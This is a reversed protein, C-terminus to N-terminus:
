VLAFGTVCDVNYKLAAVHACVGRYVVEVLSRQFVGAVVAVLQAKVIVKNRFVLRYPQIEVFQIHVHDAYAAVVLVM